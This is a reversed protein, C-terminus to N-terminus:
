RYVEYDVGRTTWKVVGIFRGVRPWLADCRAQWEPSLKLHRKGANKIDLANVTKNVVTGDAQIQGVRILKPKERTM